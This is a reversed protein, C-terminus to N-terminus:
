GGSVIPIISIQDTPKVTDTTKVVQGNVSVFYKGADLGYKEQLLQAVTTEQEVQVTELKM